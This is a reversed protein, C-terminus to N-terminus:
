VYVGQFGSFVRVGAGHLRRRNVSEVRGSLMSINNNQRDELFIEAFDGGTATAKALVEQALSPHIM